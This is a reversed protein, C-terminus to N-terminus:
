GTEHCREITQKNFTAHRDGAAFQAHAQSLLADLADTTQSLAHLIQADTGSCAKAKELLQKNREIITM